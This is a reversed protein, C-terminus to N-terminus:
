KILLSLECKEKDKSKNSLIAKKYIIQLQNIADLTMENYTSTIKEENIGHSM